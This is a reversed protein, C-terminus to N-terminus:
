PNNGFYADLRPLQLGIFARIIELEQEFNNDDHYGPGDIPWAQANREIYPLIQKQYSSIMKELAAASLVGQRLESWRDAIRQNYNDPNLQMLRRFLTMRAPDVLRTLMNYEYDGDRGLGHDCDWLAIRAPTLSDTRYIFYNKHQGDSNNAFILMLQWDILNDRNLMQFVEAAFLSDNSHKVLWQLRRLFQSRDEQEAKPFKQSVHYMSDRNWHFTSDYFTPPQKFVFAQQDHTDVNLRNEDLREMLVYLGAYQDNHYVEVYESQPALNGSSMSRFLDYSLKHRMFTKDIYNANLIWNQDAEMGGWARPEPIKVTFSKKPYGRSTGGRFRATAAYTEAQDCASYTVEAPKKEGWDLGDEHIHIVPIGCEESCSQLLFILATLAIFSSIFRFIM